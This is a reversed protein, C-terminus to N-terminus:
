IGSGIDVCGSGFIAESDEVQGTQVTEEGNPRMKYQAPGIYVSTRVVPEGWQM